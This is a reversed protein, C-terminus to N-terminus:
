HLAACSVRPVVIDGEHLKENGNYKDKFFISISQGTSIKM